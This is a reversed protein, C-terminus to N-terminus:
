LNLTASLDQLLEAREANNGGEVALWASGSRRATLGTPGGYFGSEGEFVSPSGPTPGLGPILAPTSGPHAADLLVLARLRVGSLSYWTSACPVFASAFIQGPYARVDSLVTGSEATLGPLSGAHLECSGQPPQTPSRWAHVTGQFPTETDERTLTDPIPQGDASLAVVSKPGLARERLQGDSSSGEPEESTTVARAVRLGYPLGPMPETAVRTTGEVLIAAVNPLTVAVTTWEHSGGGGGGWVTVFPRSPHIV